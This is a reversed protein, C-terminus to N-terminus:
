RKCRGQGDHRQEAVGDSRNRMRGLYPERRRADGHIVCGCPSRPWSLRKRCGGVSPASTHLTTTDFSLAGTEVWVLEDSPDHLPRGRKQPFTSQIRYLEARWVNARFMCPWARSRTVELRVRFSEDVWISNSRVLGSSIM